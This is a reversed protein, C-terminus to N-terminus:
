RFMRDGYAEIVQVRNGYPYAAGFADSDSDSLEAWAGELYYRIGGQIEGFARIQTAVSAADDSSVGVTIAGETTITQAFIVTESTVIVICGACAAILRKTINVFKM